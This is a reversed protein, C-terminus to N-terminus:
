MELLTFTGHLLEKEMRGDEQDISQVADGEDDHLHLPHHMPFDPRCQNSWASNILKPRVPPQHGPM